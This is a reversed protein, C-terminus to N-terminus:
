LVRLHIYVCRKSCVGEEVYGKRRHEPWGDDLEFSFLFSASIYPQICPKFLLMPCRSM